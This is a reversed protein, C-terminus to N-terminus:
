QKLVEKFPSSSIPRTMILPPSKKAVGDFNTKDRKANGNPTSLPLFIPFFSLLFFYTFSLTNYPYYYVFSINIEHTMACCCFPLWMWRDTISHFAQNCRCVGQISTSFRTRNEEYPSVGNRRCPMEPMWVWRAILCLNGPNCNNDRRFIARLERTFQLVQAKAQSQELRAPPGSVTFPESPAVCM